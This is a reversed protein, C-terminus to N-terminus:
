DNQEGGMVEPKEAVLMKNRTDWVVNARCPCPWGNEKMLEQIKANSIIYVKNAEEINGNRKKKIEIWAVMGGRKEKIAIYKKNIGVAFEAPGIESKGTRELFMQTTERSFRLGKGLFSIYPRNKGGGRRRDGEGYWKFADERWYRVLKGQGGTEGELDSHEKETIEM